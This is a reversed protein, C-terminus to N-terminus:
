LSSVAELATVALCAEEQSEPFVSRVHGREGLYVRSLIYDKAVCGSGCSRQELGERHSVM